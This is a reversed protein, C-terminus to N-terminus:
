KPLANGLAFDELKHWCGLLFLAIGVLLTIVHPFAVHPFAWTRRYSAGKQRYSPVALVDTKEKGTLIGHAQQWSWDIRPSSMSKLVPDARVYRNVEIERMRLYHRMQHRKGAAEIIWFAISSAAAILFFGYARYQFGLGLSVLSLTVGWSKITLLRQDFDAIAKEIAFYEQQEFSDDM